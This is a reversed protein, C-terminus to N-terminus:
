QPRPLEPRTRGLDGRSPGPVTGPGARRRGRFAGARSQRNVESWLSGGLERRTMGLIYLLNGPEKLDMTVCSRVDPVIGIASILLTPPIALSRGEHTYENNLSDKGSIFPTGYALSVDRCAQRGPRALRADRSARHQGLLFQRPHRDARSRCRGGRLQPDGRRHRLRGDCLPRAPRLAPQHRLRRRTRPDIRARAPGGVCRRSWRRSEGVLPKVVTRAQVEHDYQRVIWEKSCVDWHPLLAILDETLDRRRPSEFRGNARPRVLGGRPRRDPPRRPPLGDLPRRRAPGHYRLTLRGTDVFRGLDTAEVGESRCLDQLAPWRDEPVALVM